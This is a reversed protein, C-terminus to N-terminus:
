VTGGAACVGQSTQDVGADDVILRTAGPAYILRHRGSAAYAASVKGANGGDDGGAEAVSRDSEVKPAVIQVGTVFRDEDLGTMGAPNTWAADAPFTNIPNAAGATGPSGPTGIETVCFGAAMANGATLDSLVCLLIGCAAVKGARNM